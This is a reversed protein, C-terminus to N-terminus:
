GIRSVKLLRQLDAHIGKMGTVAPYRLILNRLPDALFIDGEAHEGIAAAIEAAGAGDTALILGPHERQLFALDPSGGTACFVQQVREMDGGLAKRVQRMAILTERCAAPCQAAGVYILSWKGGLRAPTASTGALLAVDPLSPPPDLLVGHETTGAPRWAFGSYYLGVAVALPGLFVLALLLLTRRGKRIADTTM